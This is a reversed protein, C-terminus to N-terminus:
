DSSGDDVCIVTDVHEVVNTIVTGITEEENYMPLGAFIRLPANQGEEM